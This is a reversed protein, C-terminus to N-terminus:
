KGPTPSPSPTVLAPEEHQPAAETHQSGVAGAFVLFLVFGGCCMLTAWRGFSSPKPPAPPEPEIILHARAGNKLIGALHLSTVTFEADHEAKILKLIQKQSDTLNM